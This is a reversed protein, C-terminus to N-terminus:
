KQSLMACRITKTIPLSLVIADCYLMTRNTEQVVTTPRFHMRPTREHATVRGHRQAATENEEEGEDDEGGDFEFGEPERPEPGSASSAVHLHPM